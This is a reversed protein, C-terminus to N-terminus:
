TYISILNKGHYRIYYQHPIESGEAKKLKLLKILQCIMKEEDGRAKEAGSNCNIGGSLEVFLPTVLKNKILFAVGDWKVDGTLSTQKEIRHWKYPTRPLPVLISNAIISVM